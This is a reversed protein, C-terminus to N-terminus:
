EDDGEGEEGEEGEEGSDSCEEEGELGFEDASEDEDEDGEGQGREQGARGLEVEGDGSELADLGAGWGTPPLPPSCDALLLM